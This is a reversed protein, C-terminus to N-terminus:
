TLSGHLADLLCHAVPRRLGTLLDVGVGKPKRGGLQANAEEHCWMRIEPSLGRAAGILRPLTAIESPSPENRLREFLLAELVGDERLRRIVPRSVISANWRLYSNFESLVDAVASAVAESTGKRTVLQFYAGYTLPADQQRVRIFIRELEDSQPWGECLALIEKEDLHEDSRHSTIRQLVDSDGGFNSGLVEVAVFIDQAAWRDSLAGGNWLCRMCADLLLTSRPHARALFRLANTSPSRETLSRLYATAEARAAPYEDALPLLQNWISNLDSSSRKNLRHWFEEGFAGKIREWNALIQRLLPVNPERHTVITIACPRDEGITERAGLMVDLRDLEVLGCFAAQRRDEHDPGYSCICRALRAVADTTGQGSAKLRRHYSVSARTKVVPDVEHDYLELLSMAFAEDGVGTELRAAIMERLQVPLPCAMSLVIGSIEPDDGYGRAVAAVNGARDELERLALVRVRPDSPRISILGAGADSGFGWSAREKSLFDSDFVADVIETDLLEEDLAKLGQMVFDPRECEPDKLLELLRDRCRKDDEIIRPLLYGIRSAQSAPGHAIARLSQAVEEDEMGWGDLLSQATWHPFRANALSSLLKAKAVPTRGVQAALSVASESFEQRPIWEDLADVVVPNDRFNRALLEFPFYGFHFLFPHEELELEEACYRAVDDDQPFAQLLLGLATGGELNEGNRQGRGAGSDKGIRNQREHELSRLCAEKVRESSHWGEFLASGVESQWWVTLDSNWSGLRLLEELDEDNHKGKKVRGLISVLRLEPSASQRNDELLSVIETHNLWGQLLAEIAAARLGPEVATQALAVLKGAVTGDGSVMASLARGAARQNAPEEDHMGRLLTDVAEPTRPWMGIAAFLSERYQERAPFWSRLEAKVRERLRTSRMGELAHRLLEQRHPMWEGVEIQEFAERAIAKALAATCGFDGFAIEALLSRAYLQEVEDLVQGRVRGVLRDAHEASRTLHLTGLIVERWQPDSCRNEVVDAQKDLPLRSLHRAALYEQLARHFFGIEGPAREVLLGVAGEGVEVVDRGLRRAESLDLGLGTDEDRLHKKVARLAQEQDVVGQGTEEQFQYALYALADRVDDDSLEPSLEDTLSATRRRRRPHESTLHRVFTEYADFRNQPLRATHLGLYILLCLLLPTGALDRLDQSRELQAFFERARADARRDIEGEDPASGGELASIWHTFWIRTLRGQQERSLSGIEGTRWGAQRMGLRAFGHPRSALVVPVDRQGVFVLLRDLAIGAAGEDAWEDLGDVLLLVREDRLAMEFVPWLDAADYSELWGHLAQTLSSSATAPDSILKTWLPFPVWVPLFRGWEQAMASMRPSESLLDLAIFRLLSSKGSGPGGLVVSHSEEVLWDVVPRRDQDLVPHEPSRRRWDERPQSASVFVESSIEERAKAPSPERMPPADSPVAADVTRRELVDPVVYRDELALPGTGHPPALPLGPDHTNFVQRYFNGVRSRFEAVNWVDLREGLAEARERGCFAEVWARSFFDDVLEPLDKLKNELENKDWPMLGIGRTNLIARQEELEDARDTSVLSESTCLVFTKTKEPWDEGELFTSVAVEIQAPGFGRVRKCQYVTYKEDLAARAYLDIGGQDQGRTGYLQCHEVNAELRVLRLCLREFNEWTLEGLPLEQLRTQVPPNDVGSPPPLELWPPISSEPQPFM